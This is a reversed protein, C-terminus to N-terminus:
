APVQARRALGAMKQGLLAFGEPALLWRCFEDLPAGPRGQLVRMAQWDEHLSAVAQWRLDDIPAPPRQCVSGMVLAFSDRTM